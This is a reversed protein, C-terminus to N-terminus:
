QKSTTLFKFICIHLSKNLDFICLCDNLLYNLKALRKVIFGDSTFNNKKIKEAGLYIDKYATIRNNLKGIDGKMPIM